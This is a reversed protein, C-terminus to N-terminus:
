LIKKLNGSKWFTLTVVFKTDCVYGNLIHSDRRSQSKTQILYCKNNEKPIYMPVMLVMPSKNTMDEFNIIQIKFFTVCTVLTIIPFINIQNIM